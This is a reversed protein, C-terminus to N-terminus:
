HRKTTVRGLCKMMMQKMKKHVSVCPSVCVSFGLTVVAVSLECVFVIDSFAVMWAMLVQAATPSQAGYLCKRVFM